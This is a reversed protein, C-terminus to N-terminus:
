FELYDLETDSLEHICERTMVVGTEPHNYYETDQLNRLVRELKRLQLKESEAMKKEQVINAIAGAPVAKSREGHSDFSVFNSNNDQHKLVLNTLEQDSIEFSECIGNVRVSREALLEGIRNIKDQIAKRIESSTKQQYVVRHFMRDPDSVFQGM